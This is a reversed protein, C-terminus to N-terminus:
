SDSAPLQPFPGLDPVGALTGIMRELGWQADVFRPTKAAYAPHGALSDRLITHEHEPAFAVVLDTTAFQLHGVHRWEREWWFEKRRIRSPNGMQDIFPTLVLILSRALAVPDPDAAGAPIAAKVADDRLQEVPNTLWRRGTPTIDLYWVPNVGQIRAFSKTFALGYGSLPHTRGEIDACMMWAHELPTETFCVTNQTDAVAPFREALSKAMGYTNRAELRRSQLINLLNDRATAPPAQTDRTFHVLFTSLDTRRNLLDEITHM